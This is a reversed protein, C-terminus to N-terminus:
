SLSAIDTAIMEVFEGSLGSENDVTKGVCSGVKKLIRVIHILPLLEVNWEM